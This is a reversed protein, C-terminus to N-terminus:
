NFELELDLSSRKEHKYNGIFSKEQPVIIPDIPPINIHSQIIKFYEINWNFKNVVLSAEEFKNEAKFKEAIELTKVRSGMCAAVTAPDLINKDTVRYPWDVGLEKLKKYKALMSAQDAEYYFKAIPKAFENAMDKEFEDLEAELNYNNYALCISMSVLTPGAKVAELHEEYNLRIDGGPAVMQIKHERIEAAKKAVATFYKDTIIELIKDRVKEYPENVKESIAKALKNSVHEYVGFNELKAKTM